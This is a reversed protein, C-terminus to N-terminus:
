ITIVFGKGVKVSHEDDEDDAPEEAWSSETKEKIWHLFETYDEPIVKQM